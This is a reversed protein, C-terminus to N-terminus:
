VQESGRLCSAGRLFFLLSVKKGSIPFDFIPRVFNLFFNIYFHMTGEERELVIKPIDFCFYGGTLITKIYSCFLYVVWVM